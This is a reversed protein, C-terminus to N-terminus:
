RWEPAFDRRRIRGEVRLSLLFLALVEALGIFGYVAFRTFPSPHIPCEVLAAEFCKQLVRELEVYERGILAIAIGFIVGTGILNGITVNGKFWLPLAILVALVLPVTLSLAIWYWSV